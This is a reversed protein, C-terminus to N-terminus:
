TTNAGIYIEWTGKIKHGSQITSEPIVWRALMFGAVNASFLGFEGVSVIGTTTFEYTVRIVNEESTKTLLAVRGHETGQLATMAVDTPVGSSGYAAHTIGGAGALIQAVLETGAITIRNPGVFVKGDFRVENFGKLTIENM